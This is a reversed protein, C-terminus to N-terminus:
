FLVEVLPVAVGDLDIVLGKDPYHYSADEFFLYMIVVWFFVPFVFKGGKRILELQHNRCVFNVAVLLPQMHTLFFGYDNVPIKLYLKFLIQVPITQM